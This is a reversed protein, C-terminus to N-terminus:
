RERDSQQRGVVLYAHQRRDQQDDGPQDLAERGATLPASRRGIDNLVRWLPLAAEDARPLLEADAAAEQEARQGSRHQAEGNRGLRERGPAPPHREQEADRDAPDADVQAPAQRVRGFVGRELLMVGDGLRRQDFREPVIRAFREGREADGEV